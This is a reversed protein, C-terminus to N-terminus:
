SKGLLNTENKYSFNQSGGLYKIKLKMLLMRNYAAQIICSSWNLLCTRSQIQNHSVRCQEHLIKIKM